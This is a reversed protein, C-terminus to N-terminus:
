LDTCRPPLTPAQSASRSRPAQWAAPPMTCLLGFHAPVRSASMLPVVRLVQSCPCLRFPRKELTQPLFAHSINALRSTSTYLFAAAGGSNCFVAKDAFSSEVLKKALDVQPVTHFLNSTHTLVKAQETLAELWRADSHGLANVAIGAAFDLYRKGTADYMQSGEGSVFVMGPRSYTQLVYNAEDDVVSKTFAAPDQPRVAQCVRARRHQVRRVARPLGNGRTTKFCIEM